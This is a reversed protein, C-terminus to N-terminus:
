PEGRWFREAAHEARDVDAPTYKAPKTPAYAKSAEALLQDRVMEYETPTLNSIVGPTLERMTPTAMNMDMWVGHQAALKSMVGNQVALTIRPDVAFTAYLADAHNDWSSPYPESGRAWVVHAHLKGDADMNKPRERIFEPIPVINGVFWCDLSACKGVEDIPTHCFPCRAAYPDSTDVVIEEPLEVKRLRSLWVLLGLSCVLLCCFFWFWDVATM